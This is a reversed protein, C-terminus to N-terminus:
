HDTPILDDYIPGWIGPREPHLPGKVSVDFYRKKEPSLGAERQPEELRITVDQFGRRILEEAATGLTVEHEAAWLKMQKFTQASIFTNLRKQEEAM